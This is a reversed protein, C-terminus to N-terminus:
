TYLVSVNKFVLGVCNHNNMERMVLTTQDACPIAAIVLM